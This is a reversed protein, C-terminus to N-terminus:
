QLMFVLSCMTKTFGEPSLSVALGPNGEKPVRHTATTSPKDGPSTGQSRPAHAQLLAQTLSGRQRQQVYLSGVYVAVQLTTKREAAHTSPRDVSMQM